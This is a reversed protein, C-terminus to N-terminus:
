IAYREEEKFTLILNTSISNVLEEDSIFRFDGTIDDVKRISMGYSRIESIFDNPNIGARYLHTPAFEMFIIMNPNKNMIEKMGRLAFPEAGEVDMKVVDVKCTNKLISDLLDTEVEMLRDEESKPFISNHGPNNSYVAFRSTAAKDTLALKHAVIINTELYGNVQINNTLIEFTRPTPEFSYVKGKIGVISAAILSYIGINAGADIVVMGEKVTSRFAKILGPEMQGNYTLYALTRWDESPLGIIFQDLKIVSINNAASIVVKSNNSLNLINDNTINIKEYIKNESNAIDEIRQNLVTRLSKIDSKINTNIEEIDNKLITELNVIDHKLDDCFEQLENQFTYKIEEFNQKLANNSNKINDINDSINAVLSNHSNLTSEYEKTSNVLDTRLESIEYALKESILSLDLYMRKHSMVIFCIRGPLKLINIIYNILKSLIPIKKFKNLFKEREFLAKIYNQLSANNCNKNAEPSNLILNLIFIKSHGNILLNVCNYIDDFTANRGLIDLYSKKVFDQDSLSLLANIYENKKYRLNNPIKYKIGSISPYLRNYLKYRKLYRNIKKLFRILKSEELVRGAIKISCVNSDNQVSKNMDSRIKFTSGKQLEYKIREKIEEFTIEYNDSNM